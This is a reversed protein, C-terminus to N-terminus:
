RIELPPILHQLKRTLKFPNIFHQVKYCIPQVSCRNLSYVLERLRLGNRQSVDDNHRDITQCFQNATLFEEITTSRSNHRQPRRELNSFAIDSNSCAYISKVFQSMISVHVSRSPYCNMLLLIPTRPVIVADIHCSLKSRIWSRKPSAIEHSIKGQRYHWKRRKRPM